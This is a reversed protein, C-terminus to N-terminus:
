EGVHVLELQVVASQDPSVTIEQGMPLYKRLFDADRYEIDDVHDLGVVTYDGPALNSFQFSGNSDAPILMLLRPARGPVLLVAGATKRGDSTLTGSLTASDDRVVVEITQPPADAAITLDERLLDIPGYKASYIYGGERPEVQAAYTGPEV